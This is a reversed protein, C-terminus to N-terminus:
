SALALHDDNAAISTFEKALAYKAIATDYDM